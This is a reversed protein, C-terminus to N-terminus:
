VSFGFTDCSLVFVLWFFPSFIFPCGFACPYVLLGLVERVPFLLVVDPCHSKRGSSSSSMPQWAVFALLVFAWSAVSFRAKAVIGEISVSKGEFSRLNREKWMAWITAFFSLRWMTRGKFPDLKFSGLMLSIVLAALFFGIVILVRSSQIEFRM